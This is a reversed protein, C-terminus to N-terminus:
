NLPPFVDIDPAWPPIEPMLSCAWLPVCPVCETSIISPCIVVWVLIIQLTASFYDFALPNTELKGSM